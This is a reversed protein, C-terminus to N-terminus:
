TFRCLSSCLCVKESLGNSSDSPHPNWNNTLVMLLYIGFSEAHKVVLDLKQLGNTGENITTKGNSILQFWTGNDPIEEVDSVNLLTSIYFLIILTCWQFGV